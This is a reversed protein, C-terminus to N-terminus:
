SLTTTPEASSTCCSWLPQARGLWITTERDYGIRRALRPLYVALLLVGIFAPIRVLLASLYPQHGTVVVILHQLQLSLAPGYPAPTDRWMQDVQSTFADGLM